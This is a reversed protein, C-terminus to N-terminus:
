YTGQDWIEPVNDPLKERMEKAWDELRDGTGPAVLGDIEMEVLVRRSYSRCGSGQENFRFRDLGKAQYFQIIEDM